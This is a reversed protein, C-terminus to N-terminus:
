KPMLEHLTTEIVVDGVEFRMGPKTMGAVFAKAPEPALDIDSGGCKPCGKEGFSAKEAAGVTKFRYGCEM